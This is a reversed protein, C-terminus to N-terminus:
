STSGCDTFFISGSNKSLNKELPVEIHAKRLTRSLDDFHGRRTTTSHGGIHGCVILLSRTEDESMEITVIREVPTTITVKM